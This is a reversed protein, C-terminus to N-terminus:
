LPPTLNKLLQSIAPQVVQVDEKHKLLIPLAEELRGEDLTNCGLLELAKAWDLTESVSPPKHLTLGRLQAVFAAAQQRVSQRLHPVRKAIITTEQALNPHPLDVHLCRRLLAEGMDRTQNSTLFVLPPHKAHVVGLEPISVQNEALAELLFAEFEAGSKDVEDILLVAKTESQLAQLIPRAELFEHSFFAAGMAHLRGIAAQTSNPNNPNNALNTHNPQGQLVHQLEAQLMQVYLLQKGYKWEYLARSEDLGEYCQLRFLPFGLWQACLKALETKGSGAPGEVLMPKNLRLALFVAMATQANCVYDLSELGQRIGEPSATNEPPKAQLPKSLSPTM